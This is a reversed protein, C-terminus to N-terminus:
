PFECLNDRTLRDARIAAAARRLLIRVSDRTEQKALAEVMKAAERNACPKFCDGDQLCTQHYSCDPPFGDCIKTMAIAYLEDDADPGLHRAVKDEIRRAAVGM